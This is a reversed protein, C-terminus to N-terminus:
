PVIFCCGVVDFGREVAAADVDDGRRRQRFVGVREFPELLAEAVFDDTEADAHRWVRM